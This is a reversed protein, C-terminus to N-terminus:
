RSMWKAERTLASAFIEFAHGKMHVFGDRSYEPKLGGTKDQLSGNFNIYDCGKSRALDEVMVNYDTVNENQFKSYQGETVIPTIGILCIKIDRNKERINNILKEYKVRNDQAAHFIDNLGLMIFVKKAGMAALADEPKYSRGGYKVLKKPNSASAYTLSYSITTMFQLEGLFNPEKKKKYEAYIRLGDSVSDGIIATDNFWPAATPVPTPTVNKPTKTPKPTKKAAEASPTPTAAASVSRWEGAADQTAAPTPTPAPTYAPDAVSRWESTSTPTTEAELAYAMVPVALLSVILLLSILKKM